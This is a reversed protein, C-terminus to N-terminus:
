SQEAMESFVVSAAIRNVIAFWQNYFALKLTLLIAELTSAGFFETLM